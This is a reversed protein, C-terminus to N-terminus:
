RGKFNPQRKELFASYGEVYDESGYLVGQADAEAALAEELSGTGRALLNKVTENSLPAGRAVDDAIALAEALAGGAPTIQEVLGLREAERADVTRGSLMLFKARGVGMRSPLTWGAGWDPALAFRNFPCAFRSEESAVVIDCAAAISCGAGIAAGEVAAIVPKRGSILLRLTRHIAQMRVRGAPPTVGAFSTIDGGSCFHRGEGTLVIARCHDDAIAATLAELLAERMRMSIANRRAPYSLTLVHVNERQEVKVTGDDSPEAM